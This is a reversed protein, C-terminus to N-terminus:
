GLAGVQQLLAVGDAVSWHDTWLGNRYRTFDMVAFEVPRGSAAVGAWDGTHTGCFVKHTAVTDGQGVCHVIEVRFDSFADHLAETAVRVGNRDASQGPMATHNRFKSDVLSDILEVRGRGQVEEIFHRMRQENTRQETM